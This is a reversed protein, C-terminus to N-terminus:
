VKLVTQRNRGPFDFVRFNQFAANTKLMRGLELGVQFQEGFCEVGAAGSAKGVESHIGHTTREVSETTVQRIKIDTLVTTKMIQRNISEELCSARLIVLERLPALISAERKQFFFEARRARKQTCSSRRTSFRIIDKGAVIDQAAM